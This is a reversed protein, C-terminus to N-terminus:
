ISDNRWAWEEPAAEWDWFWYVLAKWAGFREFAAHIERDTAERGAFWSKGVVRRVWSDIAIDDYRGLLMLLNAAAYPGIGPLALLARRVEPTRGGDRTLRELDIDGATVSQALAHLYRARYGLGGATRLEEITAGAIAAAVPFAHLGNEGLPEGWRACLARVMSRSRGWTTCTTCLTKVVDEWLTPSRLLRGRGAAGAAHLQPHERCLAHFGALSEDVRLSWRVAATVEGEEAPSVSAPDALELLLRGPDRQTVRWRCAHGCSLLTVHSLAGAADDWAFPELQVWGHGEVLLRLDFPEPLVIESRMGAARDTEM